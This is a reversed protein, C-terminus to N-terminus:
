IVPSYVYVLDNKYNLKTLLDKDKQSLWRGVSEDFGKSTNLYTTYFAKGGDGGTSQNGLVATDILGILNPYLLLFNDVDEKNSITKLFDSLKIKFISDQNHHRIERPQNQQTELPYKSWDTYPSNLNLSTVVNEVMQSIEATTYKTDAIVKSDIVAGQLVPDQIPCGKSKMVNEMLVKRSELVAINGSNANIMTKLNVLQNVIDNYKIFLTPCDLTTIDEEQIVTSKVISSATPALLATAPVDVVTSASSEPLYASTASQATTPLATSDITANKKTFYLYAGIGLASIIVINETKM